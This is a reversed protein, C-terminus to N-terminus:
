LAQDLLPGFVGIPQCRRCGKMRQMGWQMGMQLSIIARPLVNSRDKSALMQLPAYVWGGSPGGLNLSLAALLPTSQGDGMLDSQKEWEMWDQPEVM